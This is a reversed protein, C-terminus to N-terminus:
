LKRRLKNLAEKGTSLKGTKHHYQKPLKLEDYLLQQMQKTSRINVGGLGEELEKEKQNLEKVIEEKVSQNVRMGRLELTLLIPMLKMVFGFFFESLKLDQLEKELRLAVELTVVADKSNYVGRQNTLTNDKWLKREEKYFPEKTYISALMDLGKPIEAYCLQHMWMTDAYVPFWGFKPVLWRLDFLANQFIFLRPSHFLSHLWRYITFEEGESWYNQWGKRLPISFAWSPDSAFGICSMLGQTDVEIDCSIRENKSVEEILRPISTFSPEAILIREALNIAPSVSEEKVRKLDLVLLPRWKYQRLVAAPHVTGIVKQGAVLSSELISGRWNMISHHSTLATLAHGGMAVVVNPKITEIERKLEPIFEEITLGLESLRSLDNQPPQVKVVNTIYVAERNIGATSLASNLLYGAAGVFPEGVRVEDKGLAEGVLMIKANTPGIGGVWKLGKSLCKQELSSGM